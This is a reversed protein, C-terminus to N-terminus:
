KKYLFNDLCEYSIGRYDKEGNYSNYSEYVKIYGKVCPSLDKSPLSGKDTLIYVNFWVLIAILFVLFAVVSVKFALNMVLVGEFFCFWTCSDFSM